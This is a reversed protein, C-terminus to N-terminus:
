QTDKVYTRRLYEMLDWVLDVEYTWFGYFSDPAREEALLGCANRENEGGDFLVFWYAGIEDGADAIVTYPVEETGNQWDGDIFITVDLDTQTVFREYVDRQQEFAKENQFGVYLTGSASRWARDEIERTAGLMQQRDYSAFLTNQLFRFLEESDIADDLVWPPHTDPAVIKQLTDLGLAGTFEGLADRVVIFGPAQSAPLPHITIEVNRSSFQAEVDSAVEEDPAYVAIRKRDADVTDFADRLTNM